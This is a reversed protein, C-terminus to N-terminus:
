ERNIQEKLLQQSLNKAIWQCPAFAVASERKGHRSGFGCAELSNLGGSLLDFGYRLGTSKKLCNESVIVM